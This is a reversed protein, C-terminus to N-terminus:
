RNFANYIDSRQSAHSITVIAKLKAGSPAVIRVSGSYNTGFITNLKPSALGPGGRDLSGGTRTNIAISRNPQLTLSEGPLFYAAQNSSDLTFKLTGDSNFFQISTITVPSTGVNMIQINGFEAFANIATFDSNCLAPNTCIRAFRPVIVVETAGQATLLKYGGATNQPATAPPNFTFGIGVVPQSSQVLASGLFNGGMEAYMPLLPSLPANDNNFPNMTYSAFPSLTKTIQNTLPGFPTRRFATITIVNTANVANQVFLTTYANFTSAVAISCVGGVCSRFLSPSYLTTDRDADTLMAYGAAWNQNQSVVDWHREVFGVIPQTATVVASANGNWMTVNPWDAPEGTNLTVSGFPNLSIASRSYSSGSHYVTVYVTAPNATTNQITMRSTSFNPAGLRILQPAYLTLAGENFAGYAIMEQGYGNGATGKDLYTTTAVAVIDQDASLVVSGVWNSGLAGITSVDVDSRAHANLTVGSSTFTPTNGGPPYYQAIVTAPTTQSTNVVSYTTTGLGYNINITQAQAVLPARAALSASALAAVLAARQTFRKM